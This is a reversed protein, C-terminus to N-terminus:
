FLHKKLSKFIADYVSEDRSDPLHIQINYHFEPRESSIKSDSFIPPQSSSTPDTEKVSDTEKEKKTAPKKVPEVVEKNWESYDCLAKFTNAMLAVVKDSHKGQTITKLKNKVESVELNQADTKVAFLEGYADEVAEALVKKSEGQDLFKFYQETPVANEDLFNLGKLVPIFLRDNTSKFGLNEIFKQTFSEPAKAGILSDFFSDVNKTTMLYSQTLTM